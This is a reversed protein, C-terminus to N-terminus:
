YRYREAKKTAHSPTMRNGDADVILGALLSPTEAGVAL